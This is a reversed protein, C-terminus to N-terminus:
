QIMQGNSHVNCIYLSEAIVEMEHSLMPKLNNKLAKASPVALVEYLKPRESHLLTLNHPYATIPLLETMGKM